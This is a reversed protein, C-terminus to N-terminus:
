VNLQMVCPVFDFDGNWKVNDGKPCSGFVLNYANSQSNTHTQTLAHTHTDPTWYFFQEMSTFFFHMFFKLHGLFSSFIHYMHLLM